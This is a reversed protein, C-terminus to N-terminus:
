YWCPPHIPGNHNTIKKNFRHIQVEDEQDAMSHKSTKKNISEKQEHHPKDVDVKLVAVLDIWVVCFSLSNLEDEQSELILVKAGVKSITSISMRCFLIRDWYVKPLVVSSSWYLRYPTKVRSLYQHTQRLIIQWNFTTTLTASQQFQGKAFCGFEIWVVQLSDECLVSVWSKIMRIQRNSTAKLKHITSISRQCFLRDRYFLRPATNM